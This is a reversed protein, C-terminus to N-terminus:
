YYELKLTEFDFIPWAARKAVECCEKAWEFHDHPSFGNGHEVLDVFKIIKYQEKRTKNDNVLQKIVNDVIEKYKLSVNQRHVTICEYEGNKLECIAFYKM